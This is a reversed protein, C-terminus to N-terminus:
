AAGQTCPKMGALDSGLGFDDAVPVQSRGNSQQPLAWLTVNATGGQGGPLRNRNDVAYLTEQTEEIEYCASRFYHLSDRYVATGAAAAEQRIDPWSRLCACWELSSSFILM